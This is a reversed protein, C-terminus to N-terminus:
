VGGKLEAIIRRLIDKQESAFEKRMKRCFTSDSYGYKEAVQWQKLGAMRIEDRIDLNVKHM